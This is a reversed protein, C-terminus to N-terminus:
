EIKKGYIFQTMAFNHGNSRLDIFLSEHNIFKGEASENDAINSDTIEGQLSVNVTIIYNERFEINIKEPSDYWVLGRHNFITDYTTDDSPYMNDYFETEFNWGGCYKDRYDAPDKKCSNFLIITLSILLIPYFYTKM